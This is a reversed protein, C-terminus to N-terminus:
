SCDTVENPSTNWFSLSSGGAARTAQTMSYALKPNEEFSPWRV